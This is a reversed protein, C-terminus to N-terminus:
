RNQPILCARALFYMYTYVRSAIIYLRDFSLLICKSLTTALDELKYGPFFTVIKWIVTKQVLRKQVKLCTIIFLNFMRSLSSYIVAVKFINVTKVPRSRRGPRPQRKHIQCYWHFTATHTNQIIHCTKYMNISIKYM